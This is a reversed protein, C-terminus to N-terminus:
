ARFSGILADLAHTLRESTVLPPNLAAAVQWGSNAASIEDAAVEIDVDGRLTNDEAAETLARTFYERWRGTHKRYVANAEDDQAALSWFALVVRANERGRRGFPLLSACVHHLYDFGRKEGVGEAIRSNATDHLDQFVATLIAQKNPFYRTIAGHAYGLESAITRMTVRDFGDRVIIARVASVIHIRREEHDVIKPM